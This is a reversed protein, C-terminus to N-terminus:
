IVEGLVDKCCLTVALRAKYDLITEGQNPELIDSALRIEVDGKITTLEVYLKIARRNHNLFKEVEVFDFPVPFCPTRLASAEVKIQAYNNEELTKEILQELNKM